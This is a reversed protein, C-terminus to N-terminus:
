APMKGAIDPPNPESWSPPNTAWEKFFDLMLRVRKPMNRRTSFVIFIEVEEPELEPLVVELRGAKLAESVMYYPHVSIGVGGIAAQMLADGMNSRISGHVRTEIGQGDNFRWISNGAKVTHVLCNHRALDAATQPRGYKNLYSPAAVIVQPAKVLSQAVHSSDQLSPAIRVSLDLAEAILDYRGDDYIVTVEIDPYRELFKGILGMLHYAGFSPPTGIRISGRPLHLSDRVEGEMAEYRELMERGGELVRTGADTLAVQKSSRKLLQAGMTSELWAVQKTVTAKSLSLHNAARIFSGCRVVECFVRLAQFRDM